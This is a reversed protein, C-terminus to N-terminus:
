GTARPSRLRDVFAALRARLSHLPFRWEEGVDILDETFFRKFDSIGGLPDGDTAHGLTIGGLDFWSAGGRKAWTILDWLIPYTVALRIDDPRVSASDAYVGHDGQPTRSLKASIAVELARPRM